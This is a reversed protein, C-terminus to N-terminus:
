EKGGLKEAQDLNLYILSASSKEIGLKQLAFFFVVNEHQRKIM